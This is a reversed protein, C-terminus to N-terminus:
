EYDDLDQSEDFYDQNEEQCFTEEYGRIEEWVEKGRMREFLILKADSMEVHHRDCAYVLCDETIVEWSAWTGSGCFTCSLFKEEIEDAKATPVAGKVM